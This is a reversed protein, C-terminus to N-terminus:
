FDLEACNKSTGVIPTGEELGESGIPKDLYGQM